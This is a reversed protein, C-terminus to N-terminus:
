SALTVRSAIVVLGSIQLTESFAVVNVGDEPGLCHKKDSLYCRLLGKRKLWLM